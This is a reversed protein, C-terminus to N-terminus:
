IRSLRRTMAVAHLNQGSSGAQYVPQTVV